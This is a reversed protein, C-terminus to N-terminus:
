DAAAFQTSSLLLWPKVGDSAVNLLLDHDARQLVLLHVCSDLQKQM